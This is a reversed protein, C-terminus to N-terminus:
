KSLVEDLRKASLVGAVRFKKAFEYQRVGMKARKSSNLRGPMLELNGVQKDLEPAVAYPVIHDVSLQDGKYPGTKITPSQGRRMDHLGADDFVELKTAIDHNRTLSDVTLTVLHQNTYGAIYVANSAVTAVEFGGKRADELMAVAKQIRPNAGRKGLTALKQPDILSAVNNAFNTAASATLALTLVLTALSFKVRDFQGKLQM